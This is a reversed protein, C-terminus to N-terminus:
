DELMRQLIRWWTTARAHELPSLPIKNSIGTPSGGFKIPQIEHIQMGKLSPDAAHIASNTQNAAARAADYEEGQILRFPGQPRLLNESYNKWNIISFEGEKVAVSAEETILAADEALKVATKGLKLGDVVDSALPIMGVAYLGASAWNGRFASILANAGNAPVNLGPIFGAINLGVELFNGDSDRSLGFPDVYSIPQGSVYAYRNLTMPADINGIKVDQNIFRKIEPNYYRARMYYLGNSDTMVGDRGNFLFPVSTTGTHNVLEGYPAYQFRDTVTGTMDSLATTTGRRDYHYNLYVGSQEQGILGLGYVYDRLINGNADTAMLVQSLSSNPNVVLRTGNGQADTMAVRNNLADYTYTFGGASILRNRSDYTFQTAANSGLPGTTM